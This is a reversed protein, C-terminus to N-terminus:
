RCLDVAKLGFDTQNFAVPCALVLPKITLADSISLSFELCIVFVLIIFSIALMSLPFSDYNKCEWVGVRLFVLAFIVFLM